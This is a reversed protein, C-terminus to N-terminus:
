TEWNRKRATFFLRADEEQSGPPLPGPYLPGIPNHNISIIKSYRIDVTEARRLSRDMWSISNTAPPSKWYRLVPGLLGRGDAVFREIVDLAPLLRRRIGCGTHNSDIQYDPIQRLSAIISLIDSPPGVTSSHQARESSVAGGEIDLLLEDEPDLDFDPDILTSGLFVTKTRITFFRTM